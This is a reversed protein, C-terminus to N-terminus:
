RVIKYKKGPLSEIIELFELNLLATSLAPMPLELTEHLVDIHTDGEAKLFQYIKQEEPSLVSLDLDLSQAPAALTTKPANFQFLGNAELDEIIEQPNILIRALNKKILLNCGESTKVGLNGPVAYVDRNYDNALKATILAGGTSTAEVVITVLCLGAIIRNREPFLTPHPKKYISYETILAGKELIQEALNKHMAPYLYNFGHALVATTIGGTKLTTTHAFADIGYALGSVINFGLGSFYEALFYTQKKGYDTSKRTGIIAIAPCTNLDLPGKQFLLLPADPINKLLNPYAQSFYPFARIDYKQLERFEKESEALDRNCTILAALKPGISPIKELESKKKNFVAASSGCYAILNRAVIPGIGEINHLALLHIIETEDFSSM